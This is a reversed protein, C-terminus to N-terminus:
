GYFELWYSFAPLLSILFTIFVGLKSPLILWSKAPNSPKHFIKVKNDAFTEVKALQHKLVFQVNHSAIIIWPSIRKGQYTKGDVQYSYLADARYDQDPLIFAAGFKDVGLHKLQGKVSPWTRILLQFLVSYGCILFAYVAVCFWVGQRNGQLALDWMQLIYDSM